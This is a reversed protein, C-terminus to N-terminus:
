AIARYNKKICLEVEKLLKGAFEIWNYMRDQSPVEPLPYNRAIAVRFAYVSAFDDTQFSKLNRAKIFSDVASYRGFNPQELLYCGLISAHRILTALSAMEFEFSTDGLKVAEEVDKLSQKFAVLDLEANRFSVLNSLIEHYKVFGEIDYNLPKSELRLHWLFLSGYSSMKQFESWSYKSVSLDCSKDFPLDFEGTGIIILDNDSQSDNEGRAKSGYQAIM